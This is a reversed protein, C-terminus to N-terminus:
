LGGPPPPKKDKKKNSSKGSSSGPKKRKKSSSDHRERFGDDGRKDVVFLPQQSGLPQKGPEEEKEEEELEMEMSVVEGEDEERIERAIQDAAATAAVKSLELQATKARERGIEAEVFVFITSLLALAAAAFPLFFGLALLESSVAGRASLIQVRLKQWSEGPVHPAKGEALLLRKKTGKVVQM